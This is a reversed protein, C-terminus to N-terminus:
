SGPEGYCRLLLSRTTLGNNAITEILRGNRFIAIRTCLALVEEHDSSVAVIAVGAAALERLLAYIDFKAGVDVGRTPEDLLLAVPSGAVARAFMVKQQNGGSLTRTKQTPGTSKLRVRAGMEVAQKREARRNLFTALRALRRLHPLAVNASIDQTLVLGEARRERPALALGHRWADAPERLRRPAGGIAIEGSTSGGVLASLLHEHGAGALGVCGLIEGARLEFSVDHLGPAALGSASLVIRGCAPAPSAAFAEVNEKGTMAEILASKTAAKATLTARSEGDRLVTIRDALALVEDLRHSVYIIGCGRRKLQAIVGFLRESETGALAATPEDMVFLCAPSQADELFAAAIKTLMRDGVSLRSLRVHPSIHSVGLAALCASARANLARWDILGFRSPYERGLFMNEAVSMAPAVNLEQHIFRLGVRYADGPSAFRAVRGELRIEGGDPALAGALIKILTSKGAGNEGMLAVTEGANVTLSADKLAVAGGYTKRLHSIELLTV